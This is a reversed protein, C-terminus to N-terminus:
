PRPTFVVCVFGPRLGLYSEAYAGHLRSRVAGSLGASAIVLAGDCDAPPSDWYGVRPLGRLYWPLPWYEESIVRVTGGPSRALAADAMPRFKLVDPSSHVYAFPNRADSAYARSVRDAQFALLGIVALAAAAAAWRGPRTRSIAGVAGAALLALGPALDVAHWPTKYPLASLAALVLVSYAAAWRLLATRRLLAAGLGALVLAAFGAEEFVLGGARQWTFLGLFYWWPKEHGTAAGRLRASAQGYAALADRLGSPHSGFSSYFLAAVALAAAAGAVLGAAPSRPIPPGGAARAALFAAFAALAFLPASEKSAQMLGLCAGAAVAWGMRGGRLWQGACAFAALASAVLLTEQIFFRSYYVAPPSVALFAAAALSPWRGLPAALIGLLLVCAAGALAPVLRVTVEDLGALTAQGRLWAVPLVAYYLLPGHHDRPDFAYRGTELLEGAKVAQNAEDSHMPRRDLGRTRLWLAALTVIALPLWRSLTKPV